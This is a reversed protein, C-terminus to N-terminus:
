RYLHLVVSNKRLLMIGDYYAPTPRVGADPVLRIIEESCPLWSDEVELLVPGGGCEQATSISPALSAQWCAM